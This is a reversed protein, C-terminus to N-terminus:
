KNIKIIRLILFILILNLIFATFIYSFIDYKNDIIKINMITFNCISIRDYNILNYLKQYNNFNYLYVKEKLHISDKLNSILLSLEKESNSIFDNCYNNKLLQFSQYISNKSLNKNEIVVFYENSEISKKIEYKEFLYFQYDKIHATINDFNKYNKDNFIQKFIRSSSNFENFVNQIVFTVIINNQKNKEFYFYNFINICVLIIMLSFIKFNYIHTKKKM